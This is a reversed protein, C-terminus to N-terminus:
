ARRLHESSLVAKASRNLFGFRCEEVLSKIQLCDPNCSLKSLHDRTCAVEDTHGDTLRPPIVDSSLPAVISIEGRLEGFPHFLLPIGFPPRAFVPTSM